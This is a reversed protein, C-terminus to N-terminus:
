ALLRRVALRAAVGYAAALGVLWGAERGIAGAPDRAGLVASLLRAGHIFPFADSFWGAAPVIGRPVIGVLMIPLAALFAVLTAARAERALAGVLVGLAGFAAGALLLGLAVLPLRQWPEGGAEDGLEVALGFAVALVFGIAGAVLAVFATKEGVLESVRVPGRVLRGIVNEDRESAIGAAALLLAVFGLTLVIGYAQVTTGLLLARGGSREQVLEIPNATAILSDDVNALALNAQRVFTRLEAAERAVEPDPSRALAELRRGAEELGMVDFENGLFSGHGGKLLLDVYALNADIYARQLQRNIAYVLAQAKEVIRTGFGGETTRLVLKPSEIMGRVQRQFGAPVVVIGLVQGSALQREAEDRPLRVLEVDEAARRFVRDVDFRVDGVEIAAPLGDEDVLALRPRDGAYRVVLAVIVAIALPYLVLALLLGRSRGLVRLDKRLLLAAKRM